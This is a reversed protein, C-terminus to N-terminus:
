DKLIKEFEKCQRINKIRKKFEKKDIKITDIVDQESYGCSILRLIARDTEDSFCQEIIVVADQADLSMKSAECYTGNHIKNNKDIKDVLLSKDNRNGSYELSFSESQLIANPYHYNFDSWSINEAYRSFKDPLTLIHEDNLSPILKKTFPCVVARKGNASRWPWKIRKKKGAHLDTKGQELEGLKNQDSVGWCIAHLRPILMVEYIKNEWEFFRPLDKTTKFHQLHQEDIRAVTRGCVPCVVGQRKKLRFSSSKINSQWNSIVQYFWRNFNASPDLSFEEAYENAKEENFSDVAQILKFDYDSEFTMRDSYDEIKKFWYDKYNDYYLLIPLFDEPKRTKKYQVVQNTVSNGNICYNIKSM